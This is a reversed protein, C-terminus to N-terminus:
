QPIVRVIHDEDWPYVDLEPEEGKITEFQWYVEFGDGAGDVATASFETMYTEGEQADFWSGPFQRNSFDAQETLWYSKGNFVVTGFKRQLESYSIGTIEM